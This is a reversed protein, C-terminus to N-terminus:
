HVTKFFNLLNSGLYSHRPKSLSPYKLKSFYFKFHGIGKNKLSQLTQFLWLIM